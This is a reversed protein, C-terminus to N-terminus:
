HLWFRFTMPGRADGSQAWDGAPLGFQQVPPDIESFGPNKLLDETGFNSDLLCHFGLIPHPIYIFITSSRLNGLGESGLLGM